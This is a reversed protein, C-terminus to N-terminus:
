RGALNKRRKQEDLLFAIEDPTAGHRHLTRKRKELDGEVKVPESELGLTEVDTLRLGIDVLPVTNQFSYRRGDTGLTGFISFGSVDFDHLVLVKEVGRASLRDLLMRAATVSLGKTSMIAIDFREAIRAAKLLPDFGEKEIFLVTSYRHKPGSTPFSEEYALDVAPGFYPRDGLYQRVELTGLAVERGTHPERFHAAGMM